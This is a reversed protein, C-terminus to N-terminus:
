SKSIIDEGGPRLIFASTPYLTIGVGSTLLEITIHIYLVMPIKM